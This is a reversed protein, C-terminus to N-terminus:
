SARDDAGRGGQRDARGGAGGGLGDRRRARRHHLGHRFGRPGAPDEGLRGRGRARRHERRWRCRSGPHDQRRDQDQAARRGAPPGSRGHQLRHVRRGDDGGPDDPQRRQQWRWRGRHGPHPRLERFRFAAADAERRQGRPPSIPQEAPGERANGTSPLDTPDRRLIAGPPDRRLHRIRDTRAGPRGSPADTCRRRVAPPRRRSADRTGNRLPERVRTGDGSRKGDSRRIGFSRM